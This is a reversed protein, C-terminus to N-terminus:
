SDASKQYPTGEHKIWSYLTAVRKTKAFGLGAGAWSDIEKLLEDLEGEDLNSKDSKDYISLLYVTEGVVHVNTIIRAGGSKGRNKSTIAM